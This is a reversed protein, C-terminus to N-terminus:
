CVDSKCLTMELNCPTLIKKRPIRMHQGAGWFPTKLFLSYTVLGGQRGGLTGALQRSLFAPTPSPVHGGARPTDTHCHRGGVTDGCLREPCLLM